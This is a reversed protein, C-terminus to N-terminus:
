NYTVEIRLHKTGPLYDLIENFLPSGLDIERRDYFHEFDKVLILRILEPDCVYM